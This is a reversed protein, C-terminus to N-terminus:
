LPLIYLDLCCRPNTQGLLKFVEIEHNIMMHQLGIAVCKTIEDKWQDMKVNNVIYGKTGRKYGLTDRHFIIFYSSM